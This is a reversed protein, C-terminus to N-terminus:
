PHLPKGHQAYPDFPRRRAGPPPMTVTLPPGPRDPTGLRVVPRSVIKGTSDRFYETALSPATLDRDSMSHM